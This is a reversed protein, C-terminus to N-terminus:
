IEDCTEKSADRQEYVNKLGKFVFTAKHYNFEGGDYRKCFEGVDVALVVVKKERDAQNKSIGVLPVLEVGDWKVNVNNQNSVSWVASKTEGCRGRKWTSVDSSANPSPNTKTLYFREDKCLDSSEEEMGRTVGLLTHAHAIAKGGASYAAIQLNHPKDSHISRLYLAKKMDHLLFLRGTNNTADSIYARSDLEAAQVEIIGYIAAPKVKVKPSGSADGQPPAAVPPSALTKKATRANPSFEEILALQLKEWDKKITTPLTVHWTLADGSVCSAVLDTIWEDDRQKGHLYAHKRVAVIFRGCEAADDTGTFALDEPCKCPGGCTSAADSDSLAMTPSAKHLPLLFTSQYFTYSGQPSRAEKTWAVGNM